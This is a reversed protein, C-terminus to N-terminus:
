NLYNEPINKNVTYEWLYFLNILAYCNNATYNNYDINSIINTMIKYKEYKLAKNEYKSSKKKFLDYRNFKVNNDVINVLFSWFDDIDINSTLTDIESM